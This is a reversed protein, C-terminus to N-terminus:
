SSKIIIIVNLSSHCDEMSPEEVLPLEIPDPDDVPTEEVCLNKVAVPEKEETTTCSKASVKISVFEVVGSKSDAEVETTPKKPGSPEEVNPLEGTNSDGIVAVKEKSVTHTEQPQSTTTPTIQVPLSLKRRVLRLKPPM